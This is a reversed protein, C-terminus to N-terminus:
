SATSTTSPWSRSSTTSASIGSRASIWASRACPSEAKALTGWEIRMGQSKLNNLRLSRAPWDLVMGTELLGDFLNATLKDTSLVQGELRGALNLRSLAWAPTALETINLTLNAQPPRVPNLLQWDSLTANLGRLTM